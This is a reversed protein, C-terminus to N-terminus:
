NVRYYFELVALLCNYAIGIFVMRRYAWTRFLQWKEKAEIFRKRFDAILLFYVISYLINVSVGYFIIGHILAGAQFSHQHIPKLFQVFILLVIGSGAMLLNLYIRQLEWWGAQSIFDRVKQMM